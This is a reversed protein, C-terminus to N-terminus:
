LGCHRHRSVFIQDQYSVLTLSWSNKASSLIEVAAFTGLSSKNGCNSCPQDNNVRRPHIIASNGFTRWKMRIESLHLYISAM